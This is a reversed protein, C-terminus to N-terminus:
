LVENKSRKGIIQIILWVAGALIFVDSLNFVPWSTLVIMDIVYEYRLRDILNSVAGVIILSFAFIVEIERRQYARVLLSILVIILASVVVLLTTHAMPISYAIGQNRELILGATQPIVFVGERPLVHLAFWKGCRDIIFLTITVGFVQWVRSFFKNKITEAQKQMKFM